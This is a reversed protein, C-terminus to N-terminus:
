FNNAFAKLIVMLNDYSARQSQSAVNGNEKLTITYTGSPNKFFSVEDVYTHGGDFRTVGVSRDAKFGKNAFMEDIKLERQANDRLFNVMFTVLKETEMLNDFGGDNRVKSFENEIETKHKFITKKVDLCLQSRKLLFEIDDNSYDNFELDFNDSTNVAAIKHTEKDFLIDFLKHERPIYGATKYGNYKFSLVDRHYSSNNTVSVQFYDFDAKVYKKLVDTYLKAEIQSQNLMQKNLENLKKNLEAIEKEFM